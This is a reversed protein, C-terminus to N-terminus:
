NNIYNGGRVKKEQIPERLEEITSSKDVTTETTKSEWFDDDLMARLEEATQPENEGENLLAEWSNIKIYENIANVDMKYEAYLRHIRRLNEIDEKSYFQFAGICPINLYNNFHHHYFMIDSQEIGIIKAIEDITYSDDVKELEQQSKEKIKMYEKSKVNNCAIYSDNSNSVGEGVDERKYINYIEDRMEKFKAYECELNYIEKDFLEIIKELTKRRYM